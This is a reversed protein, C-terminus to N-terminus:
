RAWSGRNAQWWDITKRIGESSNVKIYPGIAGRVKSCDIARRSISGPANDKFITKTVLGTHEFILSVVEGVSIEAGAGLNFTDFEIGSELLAVVATSFDEVYILDRLVHPSGWVEFPAMGDVAKRILAPVFNSQKPDFKDYPGFISSGRICIIQMGTKMHWFECLKEIYRNAWGVGMFNEAPNQNLDLENERMPHDSPQYCTASGVFVVRKIGNHHFAELLNSNMVVTENMQKWPAKANAAAGGTVAACMIASSCGKCSEICSEKVTFDAPIYDASLDLSSHQSHYSARVQKGAESLTRVIMRGVLGTGGAVFVKNM